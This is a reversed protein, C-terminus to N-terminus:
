GSEFDEGLALAPTGVRGWTGSYAVWLAAFAAAFAIMTRQSV